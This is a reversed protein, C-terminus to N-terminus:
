LLNLSYRIGFYGKFFERLIDQLEQIIKKKNKTKSVRALKALSTARAQNKKEEAPM